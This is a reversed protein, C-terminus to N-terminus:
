VPWIGGNEHWVKRFKCTFYRKNTFVVEFIYATDPWLLNIVALLKVFYNAGLCIPETVIAYKGKEILQIDSYDCVYSVEINKMKKFLDEYLRNYGDIRKILDEMM